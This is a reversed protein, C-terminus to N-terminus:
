IINFIYPLNYENNSKFFSYIFIINLLILKYISKCIAFDHVRIKKIKMEIAHNSWSVLSSLKVFIICISIKLTKKSDIKKTGFKIVTIIGNIIINPIKNHKIFNFLSLSIIENNLKPKLMVGMLYESITNEIIINNMCM